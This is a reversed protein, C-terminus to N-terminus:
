PKSEKWLRFFYTTGILGAALVLSKVLFEIPLQFFPTTNHDRHFNTIVIVIWEFVRGSQILISVVLIVLTSARLKKNILVFPLITSCLLMFYYAWSYPGSFRNLYEDSLGFSIRILFEILFVAASFILLYCVIELCLKYDFRKVIRKFLYLFLIACPLLILISELLSSLGNGLEIMHEPM